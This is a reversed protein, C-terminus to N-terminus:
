GSCAASLCAFIQDATRLTKITDYWTNPFRYHSMRAWQKLRGQLYLPRDAFCTSLEAFRQLLPLWEVTDRTGTPAPPAAIGLARAMQWPLCPDALAGRGLMFHECGTEDQCRRFDELTWIEGNAVVPTTYRRRIEGIPGWFAPPKYGQMRTRGHITIWAAGATIAMEANRHIARPDDWGLRLKASLPIHPPLASRIESVIRHIREPFKLLSAGGDHRNVIPAPCGFNLDVASAGAQVAVLAARALKEPDGGLLQIQVPVGSPTRAGATLEPVHKWFVREPPVEQSIRLFEAVCFTFGGRETLLARMPADTVGEM